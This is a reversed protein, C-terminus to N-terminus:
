SRTGKQKTKVPTGVAACLQRLTKGLCWLVCFVWLFPVADVRKGLNIKFQPRPRAQLILLSVDLVDLAVFSEIKFNLM